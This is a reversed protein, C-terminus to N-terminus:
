YICYWSEKFLYTINELILLFYLFCMYIFNDLEFLNNKWYILYNLELFEKLISGKLRKYNGCCWFLFRVYVNKRNSNSSGKVGGWGWFDEYVM